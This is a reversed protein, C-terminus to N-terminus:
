VAQRYTDSDSSNRHEVMRAQVESSAKANEGKAIRQGVCLAAAMAALITAGNRVHTLPHALPLLPHPRRQAPAM